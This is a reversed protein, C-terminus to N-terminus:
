RRTKSSRARWSHPTPWTPLSGNHFPPVSNVGALFAAGDARLAAFFFLVAFFDVAFRVAFFLVALFDVALFDVALFAVFFRAGAFFDVAFFAVFFRAVALFAAFFDVARLVVALFRGAFFRAVALFAAFFDAARLRGAARLVVARRVM